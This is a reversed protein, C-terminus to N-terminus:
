FYLTKTQISLDDSAEINFEYLGAGDYDDSYVDYIRFVDINNSTEDIFNSYFVNNKWIDIDIVIPLLSPSTSAWMQFRAEGDDNITYTDGEVVNGNTDLWNVDTLSIANVNNFAFISIFFLTLILIFKNMKNGELNLIQELM